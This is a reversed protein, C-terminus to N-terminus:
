RALLPAAMLRERAPRGSGPIQRARPDDNTDNIAEAIGRAALDGLIGQGPRVSDALILDAEDGLAVNPMLAGNDGELYVASTDAELLECAREAIRRLVAALDRMGGIERGLEALAAMESARRRTERYLRANQIAAGVNAAITSLLRTDDEGFRGAHEISQVSIVGIARGEVLIPVGLYSRVPTGVMEIGLGEFAEARNLLLPEREILIRSTLGSGFPITRGPESTGTESYYPFDITDAQEDRLAIYVIDATFVDRLQDGLRDILADMELQDAIAQGVDNVVSLEAARQGTEEFLRANELAVSLSGALTTLLRVDADSFAHERDLNQLSIVGTSRDSVILPVFVMSKAPEGSIVLPNGAERARSEVDENVVVAEHTELAIRRFGRLELPEDPFRVGREITYPFRIWDSGADIIGIDVVQADFIQQIRDGVLDYMAQMELKEALGRQVDNILSLEANRLRTEEIARARSLAAGIHNGVFTLLEKDQESHRFEERYSQVVIAGVTRGEARLPAGLWDVSPEGILEIEGRAILEEYDDMTLLMPIGQRLLYATSGRNEEASMPLWAIPDPWDDDLEDVAFPWNLMQREEDYLVIYCNEAYMLTRVIRHIQAYFEQMDHAGSATEAIEYLASQVQQSREVGRDMM